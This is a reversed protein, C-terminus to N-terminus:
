FYGASQIHLERYFMVGTIGLALGLIISVPDITPLTIAGYETSYVPVTKGEYGYPVTEDISGFRTVPAGSQGIINGAGEDM